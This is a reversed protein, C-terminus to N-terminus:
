KRPNFYMVRGNFLHLEAKLLKALYRCLENGKAKDGHTAGSPLVIQVFSRDVENVEKSGIGLIMHKYSPDTGKLYFWKNEGEPKTEISYPFASDSYDWGLQTGTKKLQDKYHLLREKLEDVTISPVTSGDTLYMYASQAM